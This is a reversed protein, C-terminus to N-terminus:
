KKAKKDLLANLKKGCEIMQVFTEKNAQCLQSCPSSPGAAWQQIVKAQKQAELAAAPRRKEGTKTALEIAKEFFTMCKTFCRAEDVLKATGQKPPPALEQSKPAESTVTAATPKAEEAPQKKCGTVALAALTSVVTVLVLSTRM